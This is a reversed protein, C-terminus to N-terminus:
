ILGIKRYRARERGGAVCRRGFSGPTCGAPGNYLAIHLVDVATVTAVAESVSHLDCCAPNARM